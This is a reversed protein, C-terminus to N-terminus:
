GFEASAEFLWEVFSVSYSASTFILFEDAGTKFVIVGMSHITSQFAKGIGFEEDELNIPLGKNLVLTSKAASLRFCRRSHSIDLVSAIDAEFLNAIEEIMNPEHGFIIFQGPALFACYINHRNVFNRLRPVEQVKLYSTLLEQVKTFSDPWAKVLVGFGFQVENLKVCNNNVEDILDLYPNQLQNAAFNLEPM